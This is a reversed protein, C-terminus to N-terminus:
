QQLNNGILELAEDLSPESIKKFDDRQRFMTYQRKAYRRTARALKEYAEEGSEEGLLHPYIEKYGIAQFAQTEIFDPTSALIKELEQLMGKELMQRSRRNIRNYLTARDPWLVFKEFHFDPGKERSYAYVESSTLGTKRYVEVFRIIRKEDEPHIRLAAEPDLMKLKNYAEFLGQKRIECRIKERFELDTEEEIFQLGDVLALIYQGTGGCVIPYKGRDIINCIIRTADDVFHAVSYRETPECIDYLHHPIGAQEELSAKATGIDLGKYIQMSDASIIEGDLKKALLLSLATKGSATPGTIVIVKKERLMTM